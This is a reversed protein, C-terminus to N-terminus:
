SIKTSSGKIYLFPLMELPWIQSFILPNLFGMSAGHGTLSNHGKGRKTWGMDYSVAIGPM